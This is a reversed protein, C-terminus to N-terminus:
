GARVHSRARRGLTLQEDRFIVGSVTEILSRIDARPATSASRRDLVVTRNGAEEWFHLPTSTVKGNERIPSVQTCASRFQTAGTVVESM